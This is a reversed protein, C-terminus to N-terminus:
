TAYAFTIICVYCQRSCNRILVLNEIVVYQDVNQASLCPVTLLQYSGHFKRAILRVENGLYRRLGPLKAMKETLKSCIAFCNKKM